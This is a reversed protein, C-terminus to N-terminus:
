YIEVKPETRNIGVLFTLHSVFICFVLNIHISNSNSNMGRLCCFLIMAALLLLLSISLGIYTIIEMGISTATSVEESSMDM